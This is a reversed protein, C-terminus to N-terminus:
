RQGEAVVYVAAPLRFYKDGRVGVIQITQLGPALTGPPITIQYGCMLLSGKKFLGVVDPRAVPTGAVHGGLYVGFVQDMPDQANASLVWGEIVVARASDVYAPHQADNSSTVFVWNLADIYGTLTDSITSLPPLVRAPLVAPANRTGPLLCVQNMDPVIGYVQLPNGPAESVAYLRWGTDATSVEPHAAAIEQRRFGSIGVGVITGEPSVALVRKFPKKAGPDYGWGAAFLDHKGNHGEFEHIVDTSGACSGAPLVSFVSELSKGVQDYEEFPPRM